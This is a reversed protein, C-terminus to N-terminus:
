LVTPALDALRGSRIKHEDGEGSFDALIMPVKNLTHATHPEDTAEEWMKECNGHDATLVLTGRQEEISKILNGLCVDVSEVAKMAATLSGTHGVMDPNAFNAVVMNYVGSDIAGCLKEGVEPCSM